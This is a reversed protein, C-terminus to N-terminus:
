CIIKQDNISVEKLEYSLRQLVNQVDFAGAFYTCLNSNVGIYKMAFHIYVKINRKFEFSTCEQISLFWTM